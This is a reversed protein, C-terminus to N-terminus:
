SHSSSSHGVNDRLPGGLCYENGNVVAVTSLGVTGRAVPDKNLQPFLTEARLGHVYVKSIYSLEM